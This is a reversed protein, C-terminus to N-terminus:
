ESLKVRGRLGKTIHFEIGGDELRRVVIGELGDLNELIEIAEEYSLVTLGTALADALACSKGVVTLSAIHSRTPRGTRPDIIHSYRVGDIIFFNQYDGSTAVFEDKMELTTFLSGKEVPHRVGVRWKRGKRSKGIVGVEGGVEVIAHRIGRKKLVSIARDVAYGKAIGGLDITMGERAFSVTKREADLKINRYGVFGLVEQIKEDPPKSFNVKLKPGFGWLDVLPRVTIDFAGRTMGSAEIAMEIVEFTQPDVEVWEDKKAANVRNVDSGTKWRSMLAEVHWVEKAAAKVSSELASRDLANSYVTIELTTGMAEDEIRAVAPGSKSKCGTIVLLPCIAALFFLPIYKMGDTKKM